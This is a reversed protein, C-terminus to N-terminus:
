EEVLRITWFDSALDASALYAYPITFFGKQGWTPGWSNEVRFVQTSDDYGVAMVAHGGLSRETPSPLPVVGSKAVAESEFSEYVTFGFVFPFGAALAGKLQALSQTVRQYNLAQHSLAVTFAQAPPKTAFAQIDYPWLSEPPAGLKALVKIGDRIQAGSDSNVTGELNRENWYIFLRSPLLDQGGTQALQDFLHANALANATCSGLQGQDLVPPCKSRLDVSAPLNAAIPGPVAFLHDRHDPLDPLWGYRRSPASPSNPKTM